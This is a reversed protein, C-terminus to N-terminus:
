VPSCVMTYSNTVGEDTCMYVKSLKFYKTIFNTIETLPSILPASVLHLVAHDTVDCEREM